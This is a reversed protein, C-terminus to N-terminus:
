RILFVVQGEGNIMPISQGIQDDDGVEVNQESRRGATAKVVQSGLDDQIDEVVNIILGQQNMLRFPEVGRIVNAPLPPPQM